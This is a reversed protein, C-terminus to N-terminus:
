NIRQRRVVSGAGRGPATRSSSSSSIALTLRHKLPADVVWPRPARLCASERLRLTIRGVENVFDYTAPVVPGSVTNNM